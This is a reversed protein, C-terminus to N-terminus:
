FHSITSCISVSNALQLSANPGIPICKLCRWYSKQKVDCSGWRLCSWCHRKGIQLLHCVSCECTMLPLSFLKREMTCIDPTGCGCSHSRSGDFKRGAPLKVFSWDLREAWTPYSWSVQIQELKLSQVAISIAACPVYKSRIHPLFCALLLYVIARQCWFAELLLLLWSVTLKSAAFQLM